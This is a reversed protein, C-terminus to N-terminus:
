EGHKKHKRSNFWNIFRRVYFLSSFFVALMAQWLLAGSGPDAYAHADREFLVVGAAALALLRLIPRANSRFM